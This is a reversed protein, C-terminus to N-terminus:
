AEATAEEEEQLFQEPEADDDDDDLDETYAGLDKDSEDFSSNPEDMMPMGEERKNKMDEWSQLYEQVLQEGRKVWEDRNAKAYGLYEHSSVGFVGCNDLKKALPIVYFNFFGIEGQYWNASPDTDMRGSEYAKMCEYFFRKNWKLYVAWHQMTHSVDSAQILHEIVITAKRNRLLTADEQSPTGKPPAQEQIVDSDVSVDNSDGGEDSFVKNWREKRAANISKDMVDTAMVANVVLQRFRQLEATNTYICSRLAGYDDEMLLQWALDVSNQEAVSTEKYRISMADREKVLVGNSVGPHDVDHIIASFLVALQTLPDNTIGYSHDVLKEMMDDGHSPASQTQYTTDVTVIRSLLKHTSATVHSAHEFNHFPNGDRYMHAIATIYRRLEEVVQPPLVITDASGRMALDDLDVTPLEIVDVCEELVIRGETNYNLIRGEERTLSRSTTTQHRTQVRAAVISRLVGSFTEVVWEILRTQKDMGDGGVQLEDEDFHVKNTSMVSDLGSAASKQERMKTMEKSELWFTAMEGKGQAFVPGERPRVWQGYGQEQLLTAFATSVHIRSRKGTSEMRAATNVTDGFLQFRSREGRLVGATCQGTHIGIRITLDATDPGLSVELKRVLNKMKSLIDRAFRAM